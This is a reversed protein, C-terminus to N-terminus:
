SARFLGLLDGGEDSGSILFYICAAPGIESLSIIERLANRPGCVAKGSWQDIKVERLGKPLGSTLFLTIKKGSSM